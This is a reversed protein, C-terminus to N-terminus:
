LAEEKKDVNGITINFTESGHVKVEELETVSERLYVHPNNLM